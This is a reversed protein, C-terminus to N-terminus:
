YEGEALYGSAKWDVRPFTSNRALRDFSWGSTAIKKRFVSCSADSHTATDPGYGCINVIYNTDKFTKILEVTASIGSRGWQECYGDSWIRYGNTPTDPDIYSEVVVSVEHLTSHDVKNNVAESLGGVKQTLEENSLTVAM